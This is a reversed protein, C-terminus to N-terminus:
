GKLLEEITEVSNASVVTVSPDIKRILGKLVNQFGVEVFYDVGHTIMYQISDCFLVPKQVQETMLKQISEDENKERGVTNFVVPVKQKQFSIDEFLTDLKKAASEMYSTHFPGSVNLPVVNRCGQEKLKEM